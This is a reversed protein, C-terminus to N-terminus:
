SQNVGLQAYLQAAGIWPKSLAPKPLLSADIGTQKQAEQFRSRVGQHVSPYKEPNKLAAPYAHVVRCDEFTKVPYAVIARYTIWALVYMAVDVRYLVSPHYDLLPTFGNNVGAYAGTPGLTGVLGSSGWQLWEEYFAPKEWGWENVRREFGKKCASVESASQNHADPKYNSERFCVLGGYRALGKIGTIIELYALNMRLSDPVNGWNTELDFGKLDLEQPDEPPPLPIPDFEIGDIDVPDPKPKPKPAPPIPLPENDKSDVEDKPGPQPDKGNGSKSQMALVALGAMGAVGTLGLGVWLGTNSNKKESKSSPLPRAVDSM